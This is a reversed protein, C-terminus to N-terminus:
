SDATAHFFYSPNARAIAQQEPALQSILGELAEASEAERRAQALALMNLENQQAATKRDRRNLLGTMVGRGWSRPTYAPGSEQLLGLGIDMASGDLLGM